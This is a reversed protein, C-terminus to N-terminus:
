PETVGLRKTEQAVHGLAHTQHMSMHVHVHASPPEQDIAFTPLQFHSKLAAPGRARMCQATRRPRAADPGREVELLVKTCSVVQRRGLCRAEREVRQERERAAVHGVRFDVGLRRLLRGDPQGAVVERGELREEGFATLSIPTDQLSEAKKQATVIVEELGRPREDQAYTIPSLTTALLCLGATAPITTKVLREM